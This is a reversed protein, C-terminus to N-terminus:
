FCKPHTIRHLQSENLPLEAKMHALAKGCLAPEIPCQYRRGNKKELALVNVLVEQAFTKGPTFSRLYTERGTPLYENCNVAESWGPQAFAGIDFSKKMVVRDNECSWWSTNENLMQEWFFAGQVHAHIDGYSKIGTIQWGLWEEELLVAKDLLKAIREERTAGVMIDPALFEDYLDLGTEFFHSLKDVGMMVGNIRISPMVVAIRFIKGASAFSSRGFPTNQYVSEDIPHPAREIDPSGIAFEEVSGGFFKAVLGRTKLNMKLSQRFAQRSCGTTGKAARQFYDRIYANLPGNADKLPEYYSTIDDIETAHATPAM